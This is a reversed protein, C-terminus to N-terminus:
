LCIRTEHMYRTLKVFKLTLRPDQGLKTIIPCPVYSPNLKLALLVIMIPRVFPRCEALVNTLEISLGYRTINAWTNITWNQKKRNSNDIFNM